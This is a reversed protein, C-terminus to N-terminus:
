VPVHSGGVAQERIRDESLKRIESKWTTSFRRCTVLTLARYEVVSKALIRV